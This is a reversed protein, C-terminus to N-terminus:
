QGEISTRYRFPEGNLTKISTVMKGVKGKGDLYQPPPLGRKLAEKAYYEAKPPHFPYVVNYTSDWQDLDILVRIIEICDFLHVLNIPDNGNSLGMKGSLSTVPHRDPGILGAMRLIVTRFKPYESFSKEAALLQRGSETDPLPLTDETVEGSAGGYVSTSGVFIIRGIEATNASALVFQIKRVYNEKHDGRFKPPVNIILIDLDELFDSIPGEVGKETLAVMYPVIGLQGLSELKDLSTTTGRVSHGDALLAQALPTGLWGCGMIGIHAKM